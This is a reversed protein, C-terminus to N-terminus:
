PQPAVGQEDRKTMSLLAQRYVEEKRGNRWITVLMMRGEKDVAAINGELMPEHPNIPVIRVGTSPVIGQRRCLEHMVPQGALNGSAPFGFINKSDSYALNWMKWLALKVPDGYIKNRKEKISAKM